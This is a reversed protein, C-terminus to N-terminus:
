NINIKYKFFHKCIIGLQLLVISIMSLSMDMEITILLLFLFGNFYLFFITFM